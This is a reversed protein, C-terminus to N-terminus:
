GEEFEHSGVDRGRGEADAAAVEDGPGLIGPEIGFHRVEAVLVDTSVDIDTWEWRAAGEPEAEAQPESVMVVRISRAAAKLRTAGSMAPQLLRVTGSRLLELM